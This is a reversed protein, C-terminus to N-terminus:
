LETLMGNRQAKLIDRAKAGRRLATLGVRQANM